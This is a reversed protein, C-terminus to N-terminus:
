ARLFQPTIAEEPGPLCSRYQTSDEEPLDPRDQWSPL